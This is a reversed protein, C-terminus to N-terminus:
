QERDNSALYTLCEDAFENGLQLWADKTENDLKQKTELFDIFIPFFGHWLHNGMKYSRHRNTTERAYGLFVDPDTYLTPLIHLGLMGRQGAKRFRESNAVDEPTFTEAGKFHIRLEPHETFIFIYFDLTAAICEASTGIPIVKLSESCLKAVHQRNM